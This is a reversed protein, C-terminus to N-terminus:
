LSVVIGAFPGGINVDIFKPEDDKVDVTFDLLRYGAIVGVVAFPKWEVYGQLDLLDIEAEAVTIAGWQVAAGITVTPIISVAGRASVAPMPASDSYTDSESGSSMKVEGALLHANAGLSLWGLPTDLVRFSIGAYADALTAEGKVLDGTDFSASGFEVDNGLVKEGDTAYYFGGFELDMIWPLGVNGEIFAGATYDDLGVQESTVKTGDVPGDTFQWEADTVAYWVVPAVRFVPKGIVGDAAAAQALSGLAAVLAIAPLSRISSQM